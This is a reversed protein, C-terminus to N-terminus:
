KALFELQITRALDEAFTHPPRSRPKSRMPVKSGIAHKLSAILREDTNLEPSYSPLSLIEIQAAHERLWQKVPKCPHVGLDDLALFVKCGQRCFWRPLSSSCVKM